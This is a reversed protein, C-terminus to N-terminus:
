RLQGVATLYIVGEAEGDVGLLSDMEDDYFAGIPCSGIGLASAAVAVGHAVHGADLYIYRYARQGYKWKCRDFVATWVFVASAVRAVDQGLTAAEIEGRLDGPKILELQHATVAYHYVGADLGDVNHSVIYTEVPHLAGASPAARYDLEGSPSTLGVSAWVLQSIERITLPRDVFDRESRRAAITPWIPNGGERDPPPLPIKTLNRYTKV